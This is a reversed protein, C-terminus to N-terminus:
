KRSELIKRIVDSRSTSTQKAIFNLHNLLKSSVRVTLM